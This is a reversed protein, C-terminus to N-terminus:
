QSIPKLITQPLFEEVYQKQLMGLDETVCNAAGFAAGYRAIEQPERSKLVAYILGATLCDGSGVTSIVHDLPKLAHTKGMPSALYLGKKGQTLALM